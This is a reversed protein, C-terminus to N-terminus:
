IAISTPMTNNGNEDYPGFAALFDMILAICDPEGRYDDLLTMTDIIRGAIELRPQGLQLEGESSGSVSGVSEGDSDDAVSGVSTTGNTICLLPFPGLDLKTARDPLLSIIPQIVDRLAYSTDVMGTLTPGPLTLGGM